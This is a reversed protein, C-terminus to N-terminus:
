HGIQWKVDGKDYRRQGPREYQPETAACYEKYHIFMKDVVTLGSETTNVYTIVTPPINEGKKPVAVVIYEHLSLAIAICENRTKWALMSGLIRERLDMSLNRDRRILQMQAHQSLKYTFAVYEVKKRSVLIGYEEDRIM